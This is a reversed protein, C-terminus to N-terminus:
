PGVLAHYDIARVGCQCVGTIMSDDAYTAWDFDHECRSEVVCASPHSGTFWPCSRCHGLKTISHETPCSCEEVAM